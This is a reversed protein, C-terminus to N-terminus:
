KPQQSTWEPGIRAWEREWARANHATTIRRLAKWLAGIACGGLALVTAALALANLLASLESFPPRALEGERDLWIHVETGALISSPAMITGEHQVGAPDTWRAPVSVYPAASAPEVIQDPPDALVVATAEVREALDSRVREMGRAHDEIGLAAAVILVVIGIVTLLWAAIDEIRDTGRRLSRDRM